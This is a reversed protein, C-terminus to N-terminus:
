ESTGTRLLLLAFFTGFIGVFCLLCSGNLYNQILTNFITQFVKSKTKNMMARMFATSISRPVAWLFVRYQTRDSDVVDRTNTFTELFVVDLRNQCLYILKLLLATDYEILQISGDPM